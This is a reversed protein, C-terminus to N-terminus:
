PCRRRQRRRQPTRPPTKRRTSRRRSTARPRVTTATASATAAAPTVPRASATTPARSRARLSTPRSAAPPRRCAALLLAMRLLAVAPRGHRRRRTRGPAIAVAPTVGGKADLIFFTDVGGRGGGVGVLAIKANRDHDPGDAMAQEYQDAVASYRLPAGTNPDRYQVLRNVDSEDSDAKAAFLAATGLLVVAVSSAVATINYRNWGSDGAPRPGPHESDGGARSAAHRRAALAPRSPRPRPPGSSAPHRTRRRRAAGTGRAGARRRRAARPTARHRRPRRRRAGRAPLAPLHGGGGGARRGEGAGRRYSGPVRSRARRRLRGEM